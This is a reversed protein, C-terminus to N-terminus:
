TNDKKKGVLRKNSHYGRTKIIKLNEKSDPNALFEKVLKIPIPAIPNKILDPNKMMIVHVMEKFKTEGVVIPMQRFASDVFGVSFYGKEFLENEIKSLHPYYDKYTKM